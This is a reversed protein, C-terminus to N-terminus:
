KRQSGFLRSLIFILIISWCIVRVTSNYQSRVWHIIAYYPMVYYLVLSLNCNLIIRNHIKSTFLGFVFGGLIIGLWSFNFYLEAINSGGISQYEGYIGHKVVTKIMSVPDTIDSVIHGINPFISALGAIYTKGYVYSDYNQTDIQVISPVAVTGGFEELNRLIVNQELTENLIEVFSDVNKGSVGRFEKITALMTLGVFGLISYILILKFSLRKISYKINYFAFITIIACVSPGRNGSVMELSYLIIPVILFTKKYKTNGYMCAVFGVISIWSISSVYDPIDVLFIDHYGGAVSAVIYLYNEYINFPLTFLLVVLGIRYLSRDVEASKCLILDDFKYYKLVGIVYTTMFFMVMMITNHYVDVPYISLKNWDHVLEYGKFFGLLFVQGYYFLVTCLLFTFPLSLWSVNSKRLIYLSYITHLLVVIATNSVWIDFNSESNIAFQLFIAILSMLSYRIKYDM